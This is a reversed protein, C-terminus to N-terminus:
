LDDFSALAYSIFSFTDFCEHLQVHVTIISCHFRQEDFKRSIKTRM